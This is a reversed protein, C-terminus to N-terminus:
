FEPLEFVLFYNELEHNINKRTLFHNVHIKEIEKFESIFELVIIRLEPPIMLFIKKDGFNKCYKEIAYKLNSKNLPYDKGDFEMIIM